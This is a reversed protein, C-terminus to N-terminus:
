SVVNSNSDTCNTLYCFVAMVLDRQCINLIASIRTTQDHYVLRSQVMQAGTLITKGAFACAGDPIGTTNDRYFHRTGTAQWSRSIRPGV